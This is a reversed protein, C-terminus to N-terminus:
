GRIEAHGGFQSESSSKERAIENGAPRRYVWNSALRRIGPLHVSRSQIGATLGLMSFRYGPYGKLIDINKDQCYLTNLDLVESLMFYYLLVLQFARLVVINRIDLQPIVRQSFNSVVLALSARGDFQFVVVLFPSEM